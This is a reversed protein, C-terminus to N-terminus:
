TGEVIRALDVVAQRLKALIARPADLRATSQDDYPVYVCCTAAGRSGLHISDSGSGFRLVLEPAFRLQPFEEEWRVQGRSEFIADAVHHAVPDEFIPGCVSDRPM